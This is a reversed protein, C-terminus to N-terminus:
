QAKLVTKIHTPTEITIGYKEQVQARLYPLTFRHQYITEYRPRMPHEAEAELEELRLAFYEERAERRFDKPGYLDTLLFDLLQWRTYIPVGRVDEYMLMWDGAHPVLHEKHLGRTIPEGAGPPLMMDRIAVYDFGSGFVREWFEDRERGTSETLVEHIVSSLILCHGGEWSKGTWFNAREVEAWDTTFWTHAEVDALRQAAQTIQGLEKDYGIFTKEPFLRALLEILAGDGCGFDVFVEADVKDMFFAKDLLTKRLGANYSALDDLAEIEM